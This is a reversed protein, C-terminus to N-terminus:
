CNYKPDVINLKSDFRPIHIYINKIFDLVAWVEVWDFAKEYDKFIVYLEVDYENSKQILM